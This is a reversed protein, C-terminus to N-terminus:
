IWRPGANTVGSGATPPFAASWRCRQVFVVSGHAIPAPAGLEDDLRLRM